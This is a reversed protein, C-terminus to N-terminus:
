APDISSQSLRFLIFSSSSFSFHCFCVFDWNFGGGRDKRSIRQCINQCCMLADCGFEGSTSCKQRVVDVPWLGCVGRGTPAQRARRRGAQRGHLQYGAKGEWTGIRRGQVLRRAGFCPLSVLFRTSSKGARATLRAQQQLSALRELGSQAPSPQIANSQIALSLAAM